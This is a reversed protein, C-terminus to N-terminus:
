FVIWRNDRRGSLAQLVDLPKAETVVREIVQVDFGKRAQERQVPETQVVVLQLKEWGLGHGPPGSM